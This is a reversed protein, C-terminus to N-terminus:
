AEQCFHIVNDVPKQCKPCRDIQKRTAPCKECAQMRDALSIWRHKCEQKESTAPFAGHLAHGLDCDESHDEQRENGCDPCRVKPPSSLYDGHWEVSRLVDKLAEVQLDALDRAQRAKLVTDRWREEETDARAKEDAAKGLAENREARLKANEQNLRVVEENKEALIANYRKAMADLDARLKANEAELPSPAHCVHAVGSDVVVTQRCEPCTAPLM